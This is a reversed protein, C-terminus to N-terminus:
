KLVEIQLKNVKLQTLASRTEQSAETNFCALNSYLPGVKKAHRFEGRGLVPCSFKFNLNSMENTKPILLENPEFVKYFECFNENKDFWQVWELCISLYSSPTHHFLLEFSDLM